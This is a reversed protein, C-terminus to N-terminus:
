IYEKIVSWSEILRELSFAANAPSSSPLLVAECGSKERAKKDYLKKAAAGNAYIKVISSNRILGAIDNVQADKISADSSGTIKCKKVVDWIAIRNKLLFAKKEEVSDPLDDGTVASLVRWFRNQSHGYYFGQERSKVSPMSGLILIRSREDMVPEFGHEVSIEKM